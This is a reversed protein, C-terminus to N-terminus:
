LQVTKKNKCANKNFTKINKQVFKSLQAQKQMIKITIKCMNQTCIKLALLQTLAIKYTTGDRRANKNFTKINKHALKPLKAQKPGFNQRKKCM